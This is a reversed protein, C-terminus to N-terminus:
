SDFQQQMEFWKAWPEWTPTEPDPNTNEENCSSVDYVIGSKSACSNNNKEQEHEGEDKRAVWMLVMYDNMPNDFKAHIVEWLPKRLGYSCIIELTGPQKWILSSGIQSSLM